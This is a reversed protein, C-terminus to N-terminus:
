EDAGGVGTDIIEARVSGATTPYTYSNNLPLNRQDIRDLGWSPTPSQTATITYIGNQQVYEVAPNAALRRAATEHSRLEFGRLAYRFTHGIAGGYRTQLGRATADVGDRRLAASDKLVVIFSGSEVTASGAPLIDGTDPAASAASGLFLSALLTTAVVAGARLWRHATRPFTMERDGRQRPPGGHQSTLDPSRR